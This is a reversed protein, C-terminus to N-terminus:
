DVLLYGEKRKAQIITSTVGLSEIKDRLRQITKAIAWFSFKTEDEKEWLVRALDDWTCLANKQRVLLLLIKQEQTSFKTTVKKNKLYIDTNKIQFLPASTLGLDALYHHSDRALQGQDKLNLWSLTPKFDSFIEKLKTHALLFGTTAMKERWDYDEATLEQYFCASIIASAIQALDGDQRIYLIIKKKIEGTPTFSSITGYATPRIELIALRNKLLPFFTFFIAWFAKETNQWATQLGTFNIAQLTLHDKFFATTAKDPLAITSPKVNKPSFDAIKPLFVARGNKPVLYPLVWFGNKAYFLSGTQSATFALREAETQLSYNWTTQPLTM